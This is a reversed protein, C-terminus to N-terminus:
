FGLSKNEKNLYQRLYLSNITESEGYFGVQVSPLGAAFVKRRIAMGKDGCMEMVMAYSIGEDEQWKRDKILHFVKSQLGRAPLFEGDENLEYIPMKLGDRSKFVFELIAEIDVLDKLIHNISRTNGSKKAVAEYIYFQHLNLKIEPIM